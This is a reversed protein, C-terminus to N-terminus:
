SIDKDIIQTTSEYICTKLEFFSQKKRKSGGSVAGIQSCRGRFDVFNGWVTPDAAWRFAGKLKSVCGCHDRHPGQRRSESAEVMLAM